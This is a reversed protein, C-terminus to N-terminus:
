SEALGKESLFILGQVVALTQWLDLTSLEPSLDEDLKKAGQLKRLTM